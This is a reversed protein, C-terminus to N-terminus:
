KIREAVEDIMAQEVTVLEWNEAWIDLRRSFRKANDLVESCM